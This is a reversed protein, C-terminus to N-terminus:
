VEYKWQERQATKTEHPLRVYFITGQDKKSQVEITGGCLWIIRKTLTLGLGNSGSHRSKDECYFKEFIHMQTEETMGIGTDGVSVLINSKDYKIEIWITGGAPTFKIANSLLNCWVLSLMNKNWYFQINELDINLTLKKEVWLEELSLIDNRIQEDLSFFTKDLVIDQNELKSLLLVNETLNSLRKSNSIIKEIYNNREEVSISEDQLLTAYGNIVSLPTKFEHSVNTVFDNRLTEINKLKNTMINFSRIMECIEKGCGNEQLQIFFDGKAVLSSANSLDTIPKLVRKGIAKSFFIGTVISTFTIFILMFIPSPNTIYGMKLAIITCAPFIVSSISQTIFVIITFLASLKWESIGKM